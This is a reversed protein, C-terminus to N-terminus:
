EPPGPVVHIYDTDDVISVVNEDGDVYYSTIEADDGAEKHIVFEEDGYYKTIETVPNGNADKFIVEQPRKVIIELHTEPNYGASSLDVYEDDAQALYNETHIALDYVGAPTDPSVTYHVTYVNYYTNDSDNELHFHGTSVDCVSDSVVKSCSDATIYSGENATFYGEIDRVIYYYEEISFSVSFDSGNVGDLEVINQWSDHWSYLDTEAYIIEYNGDAFTNIVVASGCLVLIGLITVRIKARIGRLM